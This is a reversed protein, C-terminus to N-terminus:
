SEKSSLSIRPDVICYGIDVLLNMVIVMAALVVTTGMIIPYDRNLISSVTYKGLGPIGFTTEVVFSGTMIGATLPGLYTIVPILSNRLAHKFVIVKTKLGKSRATRIYDQNIADLMSTKTLKSVYCTPYLAVATIPMIYAKFSSLSGSIAPLWKAEVAFVVLMLTAVVFGPIAIGLTTLVSLVGDIWKGKYYAAVCGLPIGIVIALILSLVGIKISIKFKGQHLLIKTVSTGKQMSLSTGMDGHFYGVIYNKLQVILPKDLGYKANALAVQQATSNETIFPSGPVANMVFFTIATVAFLTVISVLIRKCIYEFM